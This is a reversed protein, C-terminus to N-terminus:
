HYPSWRSRCEKGVRREESRSTPMPEITIAVVEGPTMLEPQEWSNRYRCRLIGDTINMAYGQPHDASPPYQDILKATFDTDPASSSVQLEITITGTVELDQQLPEPQSVSRFLTTYPFLTSRPPRRIM